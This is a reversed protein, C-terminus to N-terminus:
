GVGPSVLTEELQRPEGLIADGWLPLVVWSRVISWCSRFEEILRLLFVISVSSVMAMTMM